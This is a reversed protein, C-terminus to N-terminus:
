PQRLREKLQRRMAELAQEPAPVKGGDLVSKFTIDFVDQIPVVIDRYM